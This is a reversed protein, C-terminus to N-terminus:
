NRTTYLLHEKLSPWAPEYWHIILSSIHAKLVDGAKRYIFVDYPVQERPFFSHKLDALECCTKLEM